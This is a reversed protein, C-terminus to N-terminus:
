VRRGKDSWSVRNLLTSWCSQGLFTQLMNLLAMAFQKIITKKSTLCAQFKNFSFWCPEVISLNSHVVVHMLCQKVCLYCSRFSQMSLIRWQSEYSVVASIM